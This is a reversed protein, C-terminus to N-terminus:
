DFYLKDRLKAKNGPISDLTTIIDFIAEQLSDAKQSKIDRLKEAQLLAEQINGKGTLAIGM